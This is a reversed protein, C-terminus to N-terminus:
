HARDLPLRVIREVGLDNTGIGLVFDIGVQQIRIHEPSEISGVMHGDQDFVTWRLPEDGQWPAAYEQVWLMGLDDVLLQSFTPMSPARPLELISTEFAQRDPTSGTSEMMVLVAEVYKRLESTGIVGPASGLRRIIRRLTGDTGYERVEYRDSTGVYVRDYGAAVHTNRGFPLSREQMNFIEPSPSSIRRVVEGGGFRGLSRAEVAGKSVLLIEMASRAYGDPAPDGGHLRRAVLTGDQAAAIMAPSPGASLARPLDITESLEGDPGLVTVRLLRSDFIVLSDGQIQELRALNEFENPGAGRRGTSGLFAGTPDFFRVEQTGGNAVVVRGDSLQRVSRVQHFQYPPNGDVLGIELTPETGVTGFQRDRPESEVIQIGVSDRVVALGESGDSGVCGVLLAPVLAALRSAAM